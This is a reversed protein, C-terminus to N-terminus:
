SLLKDVLHKAATLRTEIAGKGNTGYSISKQFVENEGYLKAVAVTIQNAIGDTIRSPEVGCLAFMLADALPASKVGSSPRKFAADGFVRWCNGVTRLFLISDTSELEPTQKYEKNRRDMFDSLFDKFKMNMARYNQLAFFRLVLELDRMRSYLTNAPLSEQDLPINWLKRFTENASLEHLVRNFRGPYVANRIEMEEAIVGGQNLRDFVDYKVQASSEKLIVVAPVFRRTLAKDLKKKELDHYSLTNLDNWV